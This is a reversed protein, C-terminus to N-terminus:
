RIGLRDAWRNLKSGLVARVQKANKYKEELCLICGLVDAMEECLNEYNAQATVPTYNEGRLIRLRKAAVQVLEGCEECVQELLAQESLKKAIEETM